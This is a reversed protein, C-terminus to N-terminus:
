HRRMAIVRGDMDMLANGHMAGVCPHQPDGEPWCTCTQGKEHCYASCSPDEHENVSGDPNMSCTYKCDCHTAREGKSIAVDPRKCHYGEPMREGPPPLQRPQQAGISLAALVLLLVRV